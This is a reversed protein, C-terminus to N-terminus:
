EIKHTQCIMKRTTYLGLTMYLQFNKEQSIRLDFQIKEEERVRVVMVSKFNRERDFVMGPRM